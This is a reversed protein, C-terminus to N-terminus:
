IKITQVCDENLEGFFMENGIVSNIGKKLKNVFDEYSIYSYLYAGVASFIQNWTMRKERPEDVYKRHGYADTGRQVSRTGVISFIDDGNALNNPIETYKDLKLQLSKIREEKEDLRIRLENIQALLETNDVLNGRTWGMQPNEAVEEILSIIVSAILEESTKWMKCLRGNSVKERFAELLERRDDERKDDPLDNPNSHLFALVPIGKKIAYDYEQETFSKGTSPNVTGYRGGVILVYYDCTDIIKKIYKFQEDNSASFMEMGAPIYKANLLSEIIAKREEKLDTFTSSIFVQYRKDM